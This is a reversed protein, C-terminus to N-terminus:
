SQGIPGISVGAFTKLFPVKKEGVIKKFFILKLNQDLELNFSLFNQM